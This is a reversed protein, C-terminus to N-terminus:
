CMDLCVLGDEHFSTIKNILARLFGSNQQGSKECMNSRDWRVWGSKTGVFRGWCKKKVEATVRKKNEGNWEFGLM